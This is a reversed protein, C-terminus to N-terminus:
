RSRIFSVGTPLAFYRGFIYGLVKTRGDTENATAGVFPLTIEELSTMGEFASTGINEVNEHVVVKIISSNNRFTDRNVNLLSKPIILEGDVDSNFRKIASCDSFAAAGIQSIKDGCFINSIKSCHYFASDGITTLSSPLNFTGVEVSNLQSLNICNYFAVKGISVVNDSINLLSIKQCEYFAYEGISTISNPLIIEELLDCNM